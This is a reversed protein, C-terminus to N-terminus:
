LKIHEEQDNCLQKLTLHKAHLKRYEDEWDKEAEEATAPRPTRKAKNSMRWVIGPALPSLTLCKKSHLHIHHQKQIILHPFKSNSRFPAVTIKQM